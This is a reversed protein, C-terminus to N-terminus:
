EKFIGLHGVELSTSDKNPISEGTLFLYLDLMTDNRSPWIVLGFDDFWICLRIATKVDQSISDTLFKGTLMSFIIGCTDKGDGWLFIFYDM